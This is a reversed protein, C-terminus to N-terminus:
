NGKTQNQGWSAGTRRSTSVIPINNRKAWNTAADELKTNGCNLLLNGIKEDAFKELTSILVTESSENGISILGNAARYRVESDVDKLATTLLEVARDGGTEGLAGAARWRVGSDEDNQLAAALAEVARPDSNGGLASAADRRVVWDQSSLNRIHTGSDPLFLYAVFILAIIGVVVASATVLKRALSTMEKASKTTRVAASILAVANPDICNSEAWCKCAEDHKKLNDLITGKFYWANAHRPNFRIAEDCCKIAEDYKKLNDLIKGKFYWANAHRPNIRIAEDYCKIAEDYKGLMNLSAGKNNWATFDKPNIQIAEDCCKIARYYCKSAKDEFEVTTHTLGVGHNSLTLGKTYWDFSDNIPSM